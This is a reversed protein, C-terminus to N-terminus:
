ARPTITSDSIGVHDLAPGAEPQTGLAIVRIHAAISARPVHREM